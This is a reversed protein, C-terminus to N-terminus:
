RAHLLVAIVALHSAGDFESQWDDQAVGNRVPMQTSTLRRFALVQARRKLVDTIEDLFQDRARFARDRAIRAANVLLIQAKGNAHRM